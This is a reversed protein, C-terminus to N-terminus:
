PSCDNITNGGQNNLSKRNICTGAVTSNRINVTGFNVFASGQPALNAGIASSDLSIQGVPNNNSFAGGFTQASNGTLTTGTLTTQAMDNLLGGGVKSSSNNILKLNTATLVGTFAVIGGGDASSNGSITSASITATGFKTSLAGGAAKSTNSLLTCNNLSVNGENFIAGGYGGGGSFLGMASNSSFESNSIVLQTRQDNYIAGGSTSGINRMFQSTDIKVASGDIVLIAGGFGPASGPLPFSHMKAINSEFTVNTVNLAGNTEIAGGGEGYAQNSKFLSDRITLLGAYNFAGGGGGLDVGEAINNEFSSTTVSVKAASERSSLGGGDNASNATFRAGIISLTGMVDIGGGTSGSRNNELATNVLLGTGTAYIGGGNFHAANDSLQSAFFDFRGSQDFLGGGFGTNVDISNARNNILSLALGTLSGTNLIGGGNRASNGTITVRDLIAIGKNMLAGGFESNGNRLTLKSLVLQARNDELAFLRNVGGGDIVASGVAPGHVHVKSTILLQGSTVAYTGDTLIIATRGDTANAAAVAERLSCSSSCIGNNSDTFKTVMFTKIVSGSLADIMADFSGCAANTSTNDTQVSALIAAMANGDADALYNNQLSLGSTYSKAAILRNVVTSADNGAAGFLVELSISQLTKRGSTLEGVWYALGASEPNRGFLQRYISTILDSPSLTGYRDTFEKSTGFDAMIANLSGGASAVRGVWYALGAADAPRGYYAIYARMVNNQDTSYSPMRCNELGAIKSVFAAPHMRSPPVTSVDYGGGCAIVICASFVITASKFLNMDTVM